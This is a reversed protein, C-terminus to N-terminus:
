NLWNDTKNWLDVNQSDYETFPRPLRDSPLVDSITFIPKDAMEELFKELVESWFHYKIQWCLHGFITDATLDTIWSSVPKLKLEYIKYTM